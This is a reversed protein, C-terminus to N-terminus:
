ITRKPRPKAAVTKKVIRRTNNNKNNNEDEIVAPTVAESHDFAYLENLSGDGLYLLLTVCIFILWKTRIGSKPFYYSIIQNFYSFWTTILGSIIIIYVNPYNAKLFNSINKCPELMGM